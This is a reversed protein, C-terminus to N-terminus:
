NKLIIIAYALYSVLLLFGSIRDLRCEDSRLSKWPLIFMILAVSFAIMIQFNVAYEMFSFEFPKISSAIGIVCLINFINSGIVNGISIDMQKKVAAAVSAALEPLSTGVAVVTLGIVQESIGLMSAATSAGKVLLDAGFALMICSIVTLLVAMGTKMDKGNIDESSEESGSRASQFIFLILGATMILGEIRSITGDLAFFIFLFSSIIMILWNRIVSSKAVIIPSIAATVGLILGINAINSGIVNGLAIGESGKISSTVSVLLEPASTGFAVITMGIVIPSINFKRALAVGGDVLWDGGYFLLLFGAIIQILVIISTPLVM